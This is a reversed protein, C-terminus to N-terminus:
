SKCLIAVAEKLGSLFPNQRREEDRRRIESIELSRRCIICLPLLNGVGERKKCRTCTAMKGRGFVTATYVRTPYRMEVYGFDLMITM